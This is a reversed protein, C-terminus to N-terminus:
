IIQDNQVKLNLSLFKWNTVIVNTYTNTNFCSLQYWGLLPSGFPNKVFGNIQAQPFKPYFM